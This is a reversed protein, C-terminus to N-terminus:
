RPLRFNILVLSSIYLYGCHSSSRSGMILRTFQCNTNPRGVRPLQVGARQCSRARPVGQRDPERDAEEFGDASGSVQGAGLAGSHAVPAVADQADEHNSCDGRRDPVPPGPVGAREDGREGGQNGQATHLEGQYPVPTRQITRQRRLCGRGRRGAGQAGEGVGAGQRM